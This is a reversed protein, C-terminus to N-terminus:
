GLGAMQLSIFIGNKLAGILNLGEITTSYILSSRGSNESDVAGDCDDIACRIWTTFL